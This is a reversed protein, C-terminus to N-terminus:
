GGSGKAIKVIFFLLGVLLPFAVFLGLPINPIIEMSLIDGITHFISATFSMTDSFAKGTTTGDQLGKNYIMKYGDNDESYYESAYDFGAKYSLERLLELNTVYYGVEFDKLNFTADDTSYIYIRDLNAPLTVTITNDHYNIGPSGASM